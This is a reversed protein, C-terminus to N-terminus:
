LYQGTATPHADDPAAPSVTCDHADVPRQQTVAQGLLVRVDREGPERMRGQSLQLTPQLRTRRRCRRCPGVANVAYQPHVNAGTADPMVTLEAAADLEDDPRRVKAGVADSAPNTDDDIVTALPVFEILVGLNLWEIVARYERDRDSLIEGLRQRSWTEFAEKWRQQEGGTM